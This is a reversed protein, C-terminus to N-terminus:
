HLRIFGPQFEWPDILDSGWGDVAVIFQNVAAPPDAAHAPFSWLPILLLLVVLVHLPLRSQCHMIKEERGM